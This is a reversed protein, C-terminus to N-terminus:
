EAPSDPMWFRPRLSYKASPATLFAASWRPSEGKRFGGLEAKEGLIERRRVERGQRGLCANPQEVPAVALELHVQDVVVRVLRERELNGEGRAVGALAKLRQDRPV